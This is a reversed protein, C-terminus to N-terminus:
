FFSFITVLPLLINIIFIIIEPKNREELVWKNIETNIIIITTMIRLYYFLTILSIIIIIVLPLFINISAITQIVIWKPIFGIFPPLGGLRIIIITYNIKNFITKTFQQIQNIYFISNKKFFNIIIFNIISYIILYVIWIKHEFNICATIWGSHRISSYAMIKRISTQNLGGLAGIITRLVIPIIIISRIFIFNSLIVIPAIKQWTTLLFCNYWNIKEIIEPVWIHFPSIGIKILIRITIITTITDNIIVPSIIILPCLLISILLVISGLTQVLFYIICAESRFNNKRKSIIPIFSILNIELGIWASLWNNSRIVIITRTIIIIFFLIKSSNKVM